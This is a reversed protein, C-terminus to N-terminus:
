GWGYESFLVPGRAKRLRRRPPHPHGERLRVIIGRLLTGLRTRTRHPAAPPHRYPVTLRIIVATM